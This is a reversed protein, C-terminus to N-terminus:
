DLNMNFFKEKCKQNMDKVSQDKNKCAREKSNRTTMELNMTAKDNFQTVKLLPDREKCNM